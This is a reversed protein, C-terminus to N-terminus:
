IYTQEDSYVTVILHMTFSNDMIRLPGIAFVTIYFVTCLTSFMTASSSTEIGIICMVFVSQVIIILFPKGSFLQLLTGHLPQTIVINHLPYM